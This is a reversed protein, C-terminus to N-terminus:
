NEPESSGSQTAPPTLESSTQDAAPPTLQPTTLITELNLVFASQPQNAVTQVPASEQLRTAQRNPPNTAYHSEQVLTPTEPAWGERVMRRARVWGIGNKSFAEPHTSFYNAMFGGKPNEAILDAKAQSLLTLRDADTLAEIKADLAAIEAEEAVFRAQQEDLIAQTQAEAARQRTNKAQTTEFTPPVPVNRQLHSIYFGPTNQIPKRSSKALEILHDAHELQDLVPQNPPLAALLARADADGVGRKALEAVLRYDIIRAVVPEAPEPQLALKKQYPRRPPKPEAPLEVDVAAPNKLHARIRATSQSAMSGPKYRIIFDIEQGPEQVSRYEPKQIYGSAIHDAAVRNMQETVRWAVYLRKLTHHQKVYWSYRVECHNGKNKLVGFIKPAMIELWRRATPEVSYMYQNDIYRREQSDQIAMELKHLLVYVTADLDFDFDFKGAALQESTLHNEGIAYISLRSFRGKVPVLKVQGAQDTVPLFFDAECWAAGIQNLARLLRHAQYGGMGWGLMRLCQRVGGLPLIEPISGTQVRQREIVPIILRGWVEHADIAPAGIEPDRNPRVKWRIPRGYEDIGEYSINQALLEKKKTLYFFPLETTRKPHGSIPHQEATLPVLEFPKNPQQDSQEM